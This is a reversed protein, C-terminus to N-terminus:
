KKRNLVELRAMVLRDYLLLSYYPTNMIKNDKEKPSELWKNRLDQATIRFM